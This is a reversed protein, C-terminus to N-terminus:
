PKSRSFLSGEGRGKEVVDGAGWWREGDWPPTTQGRTRLASSPNHLESSGLPNLAKM